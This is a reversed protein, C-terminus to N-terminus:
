QIPQQQAARMDPSQAPQPQNGQAMMNEPAEEAKTPPIPINRSKYITDLIWAVRAPDQELGVLNVLDQVQDQIDSNEGTITVLMRPLVGQWIEKANEIVPDSNRLDDLKEQKLAEAQEKTHPGIAVLNNTYWSEVAIERFQDVIEADGVLRFIEEGKLKKVLEPLVWEKFVRKYPMSIKQRLLVFLKGANQDMLMGMRFPTGSPPTDGRVVEFSNALQDSHQMLRNWDAILQDLSQMRVNVQALDKGIIVDGNEMDARLNALISSDTSHFFTKSAWELGAALQNGIENARIQNDFLIEYMGERWFRGKYPGRHADIYYDFMTKSDPLREAFAVYREGANGKSLGAVIVKALFYTNEDGSEDGSLALFEKESVEGTYEHFEYIKSTSDNTVTDDSSQYFKNGCNEIIEEKHEWGDMRMIKSATMEHRQIVATDEVTQAKINTYYTNLPDVKEYGGAIRKFVVNGNATFEEVSAKLKDDEGNEAMWTKLQTNSIYVAAFDKRPNISFTMINKTDFRLNKVESDCRSSIIDFYYDYSLDPNIKNGNNLDKNKFKYLRKILEYQSFQVGPSIEVKATLYNEIEDEIRRLLSPTTSGTM